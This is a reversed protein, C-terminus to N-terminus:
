NAFKIRVKDMFLGVKSWIYFAFAFIGQFELNYCMVSFVWTPIITQQPKFEFYFLSHYKTILEQFSSFSILKKSSSDNEDLYTTKIAFYIFFTKIFDGLVIRQM